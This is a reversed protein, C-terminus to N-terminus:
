RRTLRKLSVVLHYLIVVAFVKYLAWWGLLCNKPPEVRIPNIFDLYSCLMGVWFILSDFPEESTKTEGFYPLFFAAGFLLYVIAAKVWNQGHSSVADSIGFVFGDVSWFKKEDAYANLEEAYFRNAEFYNANQDYANKLQNFMERDADLKNPWKVLFFSSGVFKAALLSVKAKKLDISSFISKSMDADFIKLLSNEPFMIDNISFACSYVSIISISRLTIGRLVVGNQFQTKVFSLEGSGKCKENHNGVIGLEGNSKIGSFSLKEFCCKVFYIDQNFTAHSIETANSFHCEKFTVVMDFLVNSFHAYQFYCEEFILSKSFVFERTGNTQPDFFHSIHRFPLFYIKRFDINGSSNSVKQQVTRWFLSTEEENLPQEKPDHLICLKGSAGKTCVPCEERTGFRGSKAGTEM